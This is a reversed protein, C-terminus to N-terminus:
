SLDVARGATEMAKCYKSVSLRRMEFTQLIRHFWSPIRRAFKIEVITYGALCQRMEGIRVGFLETAGAAHLESDFTVRFNIDFSSVFARRLYAVVVAPRERQRAQRFIFREIVENDPYLSRLQFAMGGGECLAVLESDLKVRHKFVRNDIRNKEELYIPVEASPEPAYTRLRYKRRSRIGDIKEYYNSRRENDFYLSRVYYNEDYNESVHGDYDMFNRIETELSQARETALIYKFEFRTFDEIERRQLPPAAAPHSVLTPTSM